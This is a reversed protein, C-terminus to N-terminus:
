EENIFNLQDGLVDRLRDILKNLKQELKDVTEKLEYKDKNLIMIEKEFRDYLNEDRELDLIISFGFADDEYFVEVILTENTRDMIKWQIHYEELSFTKSLISYFKDFDEQFYKKYKGWISDGYKIICQYRGNIMNEIYTIHVEGNVMSCHMNREEIQQAEVITNSQNLPPEQPSSNIEIDEIQEVPERDRSSKNEDM